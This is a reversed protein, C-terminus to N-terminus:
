EVAPLPHERGDPDESQIVYCWDRAAADISDYVTPRDADPDVPAPDRRRGL